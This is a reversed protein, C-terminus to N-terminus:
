LRRNFVRWIPLGASNMTLLKLSILRQALDVVERRGIDVEAPNLRDECFTLADLKGGGPRCCGFARPLSKWRSV